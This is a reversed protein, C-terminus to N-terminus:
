GRHRSREPRKRNHARRWGGRRGSAAAPPRHASRMIGDTEALVARRVLRDLMERGQAGHRVQQHEPRGVRDLGGFAPLRRQRMVVGWRHEGQRTLGKGGQTKFVGGRVEGGEAAIDQAFGFAGAVHGQQRAARFDLGDHRSGVKQRLLADLGGHHRQRAPFQEFLLAGVIAAGHQSRRRTDADLRGQAEAPIAPNAFVAGKDAHLRKAGRRRRRFQEFM